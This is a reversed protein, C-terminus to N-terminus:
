SFSRCATAPDAPSPRPRPRPERRTTNSSSSRASTSPPSSVLRRALRAFRTLSTSPWTTNMADSVALVDDTTIRESPPGFSPGALLEPPVQTVEPRTACASFLCAALLPLILSARMAKRWAALHPDGSGHRHWHHRLRPAKPVLSKGPRFAIGGEILARGRRRLHRRRGRRLQAGRAPHLAPGARVRLQRPRGPRGQAAHPLDRLRRALRLRDTGLRQRQTGEHPLFYGILHGGCRPIIRGWREAYTKFADRQFPDIEYRIFCTLTM